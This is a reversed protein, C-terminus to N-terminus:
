TFRSSRHCRTACSLRASTPARPASNTGLATRSTTRSLMSALRPATSILTNSIRRTLMSRTTRTIPGATCLYKGMTAGDADPFYESGYEEKAWKRTDADNETFQAMKLGKDACGGDETKYPEVRKCNDCPVYTYGVIDGSKDESMFDCM